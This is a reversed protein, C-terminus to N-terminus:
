CREMFILYERKYFILELTKNMKEVPNHKEEKKYGTHYNKDSMNLTIVSTVSDLDVIKCYVKWKNRRNQM